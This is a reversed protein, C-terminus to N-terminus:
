SGNRKAWERGVAAVDDDDDDDDDDDGCDDVDQEDHVMAQKGWERGVVLDDDNDEEIMMSAPIDFEAFNHGSMM